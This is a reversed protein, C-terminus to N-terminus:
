VQRIVVAATTTEASHDHGDDMAITIGTAVLGLLIAATLIISIIRKMNM